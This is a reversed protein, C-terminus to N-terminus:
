PLLNYHLNNEFKWIIITRDDSITVLQKRADDYLMNNISAKHNGHKTRLSQLLEMNPLHWLRINRDRSASVLYDREINLIKNITSSHADISKICQQDEWVKIKSDRGATYMKGMVSCSTFISNKHAADIWITVDYRPPIICYINNSSGMVLIQNEYKQFCRLGQNSIALTIEPELNELNWVVVSGDSSATFLKEQHQHLDFIANKHFRYRKLLKNESFKIWYLDGTQDGFLLLDYKEVYIVCFIASNAKAIVIGKNANVEKSWKVLNGDGDTTIFCNYKPINCIGYISSQHGSLQNVKKLM